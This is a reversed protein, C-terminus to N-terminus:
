DDELSARSLFAPYNLDLFVSPTVIKIGQYANLNLLHKDGSVIYQAGSEVALAVFKDDDPDDPVATISAQPTLITAGKELLAIFRKAEDQSVFRCIKEYSLVRSIEAIIEPSIVLTLGGSRWLSVIQSPTGDKKLLSSILVNTDVVVRVM